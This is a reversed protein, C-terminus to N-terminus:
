EIELIMATKPAITLTNKVELQKGSVIDKAKFQLPIMQTYRKLDLQVAEPNKSLLVMVKQQSTYRFYVYVDNKQPAYHIFKGQTVALNNKRWNLLTSFYAKAQAETETLGQGTFANKADYQWGGPFDSRRQGDNGLKEHTMLVETGYFFQPIGRMTMYMAIGLKWHTFDQHLRTYFRDLDHNDPFILQNDPHPFQYDQALGQYTETWTSFWPNTTNLSAVINDNLAFDMLTPLYSVYGDHNKKDMQWYAIQSAIRTMEEGVMNFHPYENLITKAWNTLFDKDAYSYTDERFGSLGAYEIWWITNQILYKAVLPNRQNLDAMRQDFWGDTYEKKDIETAYIDTLTTKLFNCRTHTDSFNVWDKFPLDKIFYYETGCHNLVVDWIVGIGKQKALRVLTKFQENTGFRPDIKYFDTAAYGHYSYEPENNELLPTCWLQTFGLAQIYDLHNIIGQIDGGHRTGEGQRDVKKELLYPVVDNTPDGNSFRDPVILYIADKSSYSQRAASNPERELLPFDHSVVVKGRQSFRIKVVGAKATPQIHLTLFLYNKNEVTEKKVLQVGKYAITPQLDGIQHGYILLTVTNYKMGIWWNQPEVREITQAGVSSYIWVGLLHFLIKKM